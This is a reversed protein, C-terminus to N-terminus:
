ASSPMRSEEVDRPSPSTYLLCGTALTVATTTLAIGTALPLSGTLRQWVPVLVCGAMALSMLAWPQYVEWGPIGLVNALRGGLWFWGMPYFTPLDAYNMDAHSATETMRTLFQTRFVQDVQVGDLWLRTASLPLGLSALTLLAPSLYSVM